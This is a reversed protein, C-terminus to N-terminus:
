AALLRPRDEEEVERIFKCIGRKSSKIFEVLERVYPSDFERELRDVARPIILGSGYLVRFARQLEGREAVSLGARRLGVVNVNMVTNTHMSRTICFPPVDMQVGSAGSLMALRGVRTFQHVLCNASIVAREGIEVHGALCANNILIVHDGVICNHAVHSGAMLLCHSGIRTTSDAQTGRHVTVGERIVCNSGIDLHSDAGHFSRDQPVDGLVAGAHVRCNDGLRTGRMICVHPGIICGGGIAVDDEIFAYPGITVDQGIQASDAIVATRHITM